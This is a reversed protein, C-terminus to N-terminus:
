LFGGAVALSVFSFYLGQRTDEELQRPNEKYFKVQKEPILGDKQMEVFARDPDVFLYELAKLEDMTQQLAEVVQQQTLSDSFAELSEKRGKAGQLNSVMEKTRPDKTVADLLAALDVADQSPINPSAAQLTAARAMYRKMDEVSVAELDDERPINGTQDKNNNLVGFQGACLSPLFLLIFILVHMKTPQRLSFMM